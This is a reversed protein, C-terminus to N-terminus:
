SAAAPSEWTEKVFRIGERLIDPPVGPAPEFVKVADQPILEAFQTFDMDGYPPVLHDHGPAKVDHIHFGAVHPQLKRLWDAHSILGLNHRIQAHGFDHWYRLSPSDFRTALAQMELETPIAEWTPLNELALAIGADEMVPLLQELSHSLYDLHKTVKKERALLLRMKTKEYKPTYQKDDTALEVLTRTMRKMDVNGAHCVVVRAGVRMAFEV